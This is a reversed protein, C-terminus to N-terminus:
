YREWLLVNLFSLRKCALIHTKFIYLFIFALEPCPSCFLSPFGPTCSHLGISAQNMGLSIPYSSWIAQHLKPKQETGLVEVTERAAQLGVSVELSSIRQTLQRDQWQSIKLNFVVFLCLARFGRLQFQGSHWRQVPESEHCWFAGHLSGFPSLM